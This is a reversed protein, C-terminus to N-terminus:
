KRGAPTPVPLAQAALNSGSGRIHYWFACFSALKSRLDATVFVSTRHTGVITDCLPAYGRGTHVDEDSRLSANDEQTVIKQIPTAKGRIVTGTISQNDSTPYRWEAPVGDDRSPRKSYNSHLHTYPPLPTLDCNGIEESRDTSRYQGAGRM